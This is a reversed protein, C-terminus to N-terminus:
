KIALFKRMLIVDRSIVIKKTIPKYVKYVKSQDSVGLFIYKEGKNDLKTSKQKSIHTYAVCRFIRFYDVTSKRASWVEEPMMNKVALTPSKNM